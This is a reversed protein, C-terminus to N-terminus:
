YTVPGFHGQYGVQTIILRNICEVSVLGSELPRGFLAFNQITYANAYQNAQPHFRRVSMGMVTEFPHGGTRILSFYSPYIIGDFGAQCAYQAIARCIEYSHSRALFLMHLALDLSEFETVDEQLVHTLDLLRLDRQTKFTAVFIDDDASAHCEHICVDIDQSGYMVPFGASDLRGNGALAVPPSDYELPDAPETPGVRLRYFKTDKALAVVPYENLIRELIPQRTAPDQLAKLPEIEGFMWFRPGYHFFGIKASEEILKIDNKLWASPSISTEGYHHENFQIRPYGGYESRVTTGSVFFYWALAEIHSKTLKRGETSKCQPCEDPQELGHRTADVRLGEDAFCHSCLLIQNENAADDNM